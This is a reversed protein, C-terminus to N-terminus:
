NSDSKRPRGRGRKGTGANTKEKKLNNKAEALEEKDKLDKYAQTITNVIAYLSTTDPLEFTERIYNCSEKYSELEGM